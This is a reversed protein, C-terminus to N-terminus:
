FLYFSLVLGALAGGLVAAVLNPVAKAFSGGRVVSATLLGIGAAFGMDIWGGTQTIMGTGHNIAWVTGVIFLAAMFGGIPGFNEVLKGWILRIYFPFLFGGVITALALTLTM